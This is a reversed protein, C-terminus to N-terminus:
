AEALKPLVVELERPPYHPRLIAKNLDKIDLCVLIEGPEPKEVIVLFSVWETPETVDLKETRELEVKLSDQLALPMPRPSTSSPYM